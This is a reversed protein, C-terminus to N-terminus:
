QTGYQKRLSNYVAGPLEPTIQSFATGKANLSVDVGISQFDQVLSRLAPLPGLDNLVSPNLDDSMYALGHSLAAIQTRMSDLREELEKHGWGTGQKYTFCFPFDSM